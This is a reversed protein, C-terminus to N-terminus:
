VKVVPYVLGQVHGGLLAILHYFDDLLKDDIHRYDFYIINVLDNMLESVASFPIVVHKGYLEKMQQLTKNM